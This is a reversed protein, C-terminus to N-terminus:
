KRQMVYYKEYSSNHLARCLEDAMLLHRKLLERHFYDYLPIFYNGVCYIIWNALTARSLLVGMQKWDQEQRYLPMSNAYKQYMVWAVAFASAYSHSILAEPVRAKVFQINRAMASATSCELCKATECYINSVEGKAPTFRFERRVFEKGIVEMESGCDGCYRQEESFPIVM